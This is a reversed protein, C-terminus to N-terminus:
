KKKSIIVKLKTEKDKKQEKSKKKEKRNKKRKM